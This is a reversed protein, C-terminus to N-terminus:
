HTLDSLRNRRREDLPGLRRLVGDAVGWIIATLQARRNTGLAVRMMHAVVEVVFRRSVWLPNTRVYESSLVISNRTMYYVRFPAHQNVTMPAGNRRISLGAVSADVRHGLSHRMDTGPVSLVAYGARRMRATLESDVADIFFEDRFAGVERAATVSVLSGSQIPDYPHHVDGVVRGAIRAANNAAPTLVGTRIGPVSHEVFSLAKSLFETEPFSDQDLTYLWARNQAYAEELATNLACAIGLNTPHRIVTAGAHQLTDLLSTSVPGSGDDVIVVRLGESLLADVLGMVQDSPRYSPIAVLIDEKRFM